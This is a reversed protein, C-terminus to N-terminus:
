DFSLKTYLANMNSLMKELSLHLSNLMECMAPWVEYNEHCGLIEAVHSIASFKGEHSPLENM